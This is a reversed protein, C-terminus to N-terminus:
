HLKLQSFRFTKNPCYKKFFSEWVTNNNRLTIKDYEKKTLALKMAKVIDSYRKGM